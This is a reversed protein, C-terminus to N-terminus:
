LLAVPVQLGKQLLKEFQIKGQRVLVEQKYQDLTKRAAKRQSSVLSLLATVIKM